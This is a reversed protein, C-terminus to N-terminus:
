TWDMPGDAPGAHATDGDAVPVTLPVEDIEKESALAYNVAVNFELIESDAGVGLACFEASHRWVHDFNDRLAGRLYAQKSSYALLGETVVPALNTRRSSQSLWWHKHWDLFQLVRRMEERLLLVEESFRM